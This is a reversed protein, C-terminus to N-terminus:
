LLVGTQAVTTSISQTVMRESQIAARFFSMPWMASVSTRSKIWEEGRRLCREPTQLDFLALGLRYFSGTATQRVGHYLVLWGKPTEIPPPSLGIKDADWWAGHRAELM